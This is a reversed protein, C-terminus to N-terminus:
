LMSEPTIADANIEGLCHSPFYALRCYIMVPSKAGHGGM